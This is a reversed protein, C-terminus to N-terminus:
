EPATQRLTEDPLSPTPDERCDSRPESLRSDERCDSRPESLRSDDRCDSRPESLGPDDEPFSDTDGPSPLPDEAASSRPSYLVPREKRINRFASHKKM